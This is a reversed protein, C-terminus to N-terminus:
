PAGNQATVACEDLCEKRELWKMYASVDIAPVTGLSQLTRFLTLLFHMVAFSPESHSVTPAGASDYSASFGGGELVCGFDIQHDQTAATDTLARQFPEGFAEAWGNRIAVIGAPIRFPQRPANVGGIHQIPASTRHLARVSAAKKGAYILYDRNLEPKVEVVAYVSEAPIFLQGGDNLIFLSYQRDFIVIDQQESRVGNSDVLFAREVQYRQPLYDQLLKIWNFEIADGKAVPHTFAASALNQKSLLGEQLLCFINSLDVSLTEAIASQSV